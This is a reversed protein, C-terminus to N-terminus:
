RRPVEGLLVDAIAASIPFKPNKLELWFFEGAPNIELFVYRNDPTLIMDVAGYNLGFVDMLTLLKEEIEHPLRHYEWDEILGAGDRRWDDRALQSKQSDVAAAFIKNGVITVRLELCKPVNEQFTMPCLSLGDLDELHEEKIENTFVVKGRKEDDYVAFSSLMKTIMGSKCAAFFERVAEPSNTILTRPIELGVDRAVQMQLQKHSAYKVRHYPDLVFVDKGLSELLGFFVTRSELLSPERLKRSMEDPLKEGIRLRRYWVGTVEDLDLEGGPLSLIWRKGDKRDELSLQIETPFLETNFRYPEAKRAKLAKEVLEICENDQSFTIILVRKMEM